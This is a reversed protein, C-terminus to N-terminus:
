DTPRDFFHAGPLVNISAVSFRAACSPALLALGTSGMAALHGADPYPYMPRPNRRGTSPIELHDGGSPTSFHDFVGEMAGHSPTPLHMEVGRSPAISRDLEGGSPTLPTIKQPSRKRYAGREFLQAAGVDYGPLRDLSQWTVAYWAAKNPRQGKVTEFILGAELLERKARTIVDNSKWGRKALYAGSLLLRGNNDRVYQRAVEMLLARAPHSLAKYAPCDLVAWPLAVFGGSDRGGNSKGTTKKTM